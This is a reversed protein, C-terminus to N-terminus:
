PGSVFAIFFTQLPIHARGRVQLVCGSVGDCVTPEQDLFMGFTEELRLFQREAIHTIICTYGRPSGAFLRGLHVKHISGPHHGPNNGM